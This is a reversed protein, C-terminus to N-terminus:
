WRVALKLNMLRPTLRNPVAFTNNDFDKILAYSITNGRDLLNFVELSLWMNELNRFPSHSRRESMDSSLLQYSFGLDVRIYAPIELANRYRISGPINYPLNTGYLTQLFVKFNKNTTLYDSFYLGFNIRRDTPRRLWGVNVQQSDTAVQDPTAATILEGGANYYKQYFDNDLNERTRM